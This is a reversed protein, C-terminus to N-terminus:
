IGCIFSLSFIKRETQTILKAYYGGPANMNNCIIFIREKRM